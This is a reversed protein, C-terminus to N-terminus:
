EEGLAKSLASLAREVSADADDVSVTPRSGVADHLMEAALAVRCLAAYTDPDAQAIHAADDAGSAIKVPGGSEVYEERNSDWTECDAIIFGVHPDPNGALVGSCDGMWPQGTTFWPGRTAKGAVEIHAELKKSLTM